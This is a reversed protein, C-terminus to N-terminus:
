RREPTDMQEFSIRNLAYDSKYHDLIKFLQM